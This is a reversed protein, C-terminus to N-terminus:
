VLIQRHRETTANSMRWEEVPEDAGNKVQGREFHQREDRSLVPTSRCYMRSFIGISGHRFRAPWIASELFSSGWGNRKL